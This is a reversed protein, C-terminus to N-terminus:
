AMRRFRAAVFGDANHVHPWTRLLGKDDLFPVVCPDEPPELRFGPHEKLFMMVQAEGEEHSFSCVAYVLVGGVRVRRAVAELLAKQVSALRMVDEEGRRWKLEPHRRIVGLGTCPADLLVRDYDEELPAAAACLDAEVARIGALGLRRAHEQLLRLKKGSLDVAHILARGGALEALHTAKGGLGSCADLIREGEHAGLLRGVLQAGLDQVTALGERVPQLDAPSAAQRVAVAEPLPSEPVVKARPATAAIMAEVDRRSTRTQNVRLWVPPPTNQAAAWACAGEPGLSALVRRALWEPVSERAVLAALPDSSPDPLAPEGERALRRLLANAFRALGEGRM